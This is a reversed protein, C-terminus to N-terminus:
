HVINTRVQHINQTSFTASISHFNLHVIACQIRTRLTYYVSKVLISYTNFYPMIRAVRIHM